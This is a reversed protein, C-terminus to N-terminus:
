TKKTTSVEQYDERSCLYYTVGSWISLYGFLMLMYFVPPVDVSLRVTLLIVWPFVLGIFLSWLIQVLSLSKRNLFRKNIFEFIGLNSFTFTVFGLFLFKQLNGYLYAFPEYFIGIVGLCIPVWFWWFFILTIKEKTTTNKM